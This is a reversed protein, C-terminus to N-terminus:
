KRFGGLHIAAGGALYGLVYGLVGRTITEGGGQLLLSGAIGAGTQAVNCVAARRHEEQFLWPANYGLSAGGIAGLVRHERWLLGGAVLGIVSGASGGSPVDDLSRAGSIGQVFESMSSGRRPAVESGFASSFRALSRSAGSVEDIGRLYNAM